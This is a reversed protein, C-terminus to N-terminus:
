PLFSIIFPRSRFPVKELGGKDMDMGCPQAPTAENDDEM